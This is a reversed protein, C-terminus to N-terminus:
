AKRRRRRTGALALAGLGALLGFVSPEPVSILLLTGADANWSNEKYKWETDNIWNNDSDYTGVLVENFFTGDTIANEATITLAVQDGTLVGEGLASIDLYLTAGSAVTFNCSAAATLQASNNALLSVDHLVVGAAAANVSSRFTAPDWGEYTVITDAIKVMGSGLANAHGASVKVGVVELGGSFSNDGALTLAEGTYFHYMAKVAGAGSIVGSLTNGENGSKLTLTKGSNVAIDNGVSLTARDNTEGIQLTADGTVTVASASAGLATSSGAVVTGAEIRTGKDYTNAGSLVLTGSGQKVLVSNADSLGSAPTLINGSITLTVGDNVDFALTKDEGGRITMNASIESDATATVTNSQFFDLAHGHNDAGTGSIKGGNLVFDVNSCFSQRQTGLALEGGANLTITQTQGVSWNFIDGSGSADVTANGITLNGSISTSGSLAITSKDGTGALSLSTGAALSSVTASLAGTGTVAVSGGSVTLTGLQAAGNFNVTGASVTVADIYVTSSSNFNTTSQSNKFGGLHNDSTGVKSAADFTLNAAATKELTGPGTLTGTYTLPKRQNTHLTTAGLLEINNSVTSSATTQMNVGSSLRYSGNGINSADVSFYGGTIHVVGSFNANSINLTNSWAQTLNLELTGTGAISGSTYGAIGAGNAGGLALTVNDGLTLVANNNNNFTLSSSVAEVRGTGTFTTNASVAIAAPNVTGEVSVQAGETAFTVSDGNYFAEANSSSNDQWPTATPTETITVAKWVASGDGKWTLAKATAASANYSVVGAESSTLGRAAIAEGNYTFNSNTLTDWGNITGGASILRTEGAHTLDFVTTDSITVSVSDTVSIASTLNLKGALELTGGTASITGNLTGTSALKLTGATLAISGSDGVNVMGALELMGAGSVTLAGAASFEINGLTITAGADAGTAASSAGNASTVRKTTDIAVAGGVNLTVGSGAAWDELAGLTGGNLNYVKTGNGNNGTALGSSGLNLRGNGSLTVTAANTSQGTLNIGKLNVEGGSISMEGPSTWSVVAVTRAANLVGGTVNLAGRGNGWHGILVGSSTGGETNTSSINLVGGSLNYTSVGSANGSDHLRLATATVTGGSQNIVGGARTGISQSLTLVGDTINLVSGSGSVLVSNDSGQVGSIQTGSIGGTFSSTGGSITVTAGSSVGLGLGSVGGAFERIGSSVVLAKGGLNVAGDIRVTTNSSATFNTGIKNYAATGDTDTFAITGAGALTVSSVGVARSIQTTDFALTAGANARLTAPGSLTLSGSGANSLTLTKGEGSVYIVDTVVASDTTLTTDATLTFDAYAGNTSTIQGTAADVTSQSNAWATDFSVGSWASDGGLTATHATGAYTNIIKIGAIGGRIEQNNKTTGAGGNISLSYGMVGSLTMSNVGPDITANQSTGWEENGAVAIGGDSSTYATGNITVAAFKANPRDTAALVVVDYVLYSIGSLTVQAYHGDVAGDDLYGKLAEETATTWMYTNKSSWTTTVGSDAGSTDKLITSAAETSNTKKTAENWGSVSNFTLAGNGGTDNTKNAGYSIYIDAHAPVSMAAAALLSTILLKSTKM